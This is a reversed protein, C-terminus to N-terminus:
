ALRTELAPSPGADLRELRERHRRVDVFRSILLVLAGFGAVVFFVSSYDLWRDLAGALASGLAVGLNALAMYVAYQTAAVRKWCLAMFIPLSAVIFVVGVVEGAVLYSAVAGREGWLGTLLGAAAQLSISLVLVGALTPLEGFRHVITAGAAMGSLGAVLGAAAVLQSYEADSWGLERVVLVPLLAVLVGAGIRFLFVFSTAVLSAPLVLARGLSTAIAWWSGVQLELSSQSAVGSTWPLLKEGPRERLLLPLLAIGALVASVTLIAPATGYLSMITGGVGASSATGIAQGGFMFGTARARQDQPLVDIAMGDVAVDQFAACFNAAFGLAALLSLNQVPDPIAAMLSFSVLLGLQAGLVWPRRRGMPLYCFRDMLPGAVLKLSWPFMVVALFPGIEATGLGQRALSAPFAVTLLGLPLGQAAYLGGFTLYRLLSSESLTRM